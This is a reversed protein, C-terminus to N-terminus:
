GMERAKRLKRGIHRSLYAPITALAACTYNAFFLVFTQVTSPAPVGRLHALWVGIPDMSAAILGAALTKGPTAPAIMSQVLVLVTVWSLQVMQARLPPPSLWTNMAAILAANFVMFVLGLDAKAQPSHKSYRVYVFMLVSVFIGIIEVLANKWTDMRFVVPTTRAIVQDMILGVAWLMAGLLCFLALRKVQETFLDEPLYSTSHTTSPPGPSPTHERPVIRHKEQHM